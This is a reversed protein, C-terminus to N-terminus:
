EEKLLKYYEPHVKLSRKEKRALQGILTPLFTIFHEITYGYSIPAPHTTGFYQKILRLIEKESYLGRLRKFMGGHKGWAVPYSMHVKARYKRLYFSILDTNSM